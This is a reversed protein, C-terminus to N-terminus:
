SIFCKDTQRCVTRRGLTMKRAFNITPVRGPCLTRDTRTAADNRKCCSRFLGDLGPSSETELPSRWVATRKRPDNKGQLMQSSLGDLVYFKMTRSAMPCRDSPSARSPSGADTKIDGVESRTHSAPKDRRNRTGRPSPSPLLIGCRVAPAPTTHLARQTPDRSRQRQTRAATRPFLNRHYFNALLYLIGRM